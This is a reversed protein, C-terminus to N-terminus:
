KNDGQPEHYKATPGCPGRTDRAEACYPRIRGSLGGMVSPHKCKWLRGAHSISLHKCTRCQDAWTNRIVYKGSESKGITPKM